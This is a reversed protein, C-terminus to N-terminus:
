IIEKLWNAKRERVLIESRLRIMLLWGFYFMFGLMMLLLPWLMDGEISPKGMKSVTPGQHLSNWWM